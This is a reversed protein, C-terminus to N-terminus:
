RQRRHEADAKCAEHWSGGARCTMAMARLESWSSAHFRHNATTHTAQASQHEVNTSFVVNRGKSVVVTGAVMSTVATSLM